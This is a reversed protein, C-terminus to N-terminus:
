STRLLRIALVTPEISLRRRILIVMALQWSALSVSAAVAAGYIGFPPILAFNLAANVVVAAALLGASHAQHGTMSALFGVPWTLMVVTPGILLIQLPKYAVVFQPGFTGLLLDGFVLAVLIAPVSLALVAASGLAVTRQLDHHRGAAHFEAFMPTTVTNVATIGLVSFNAIRIAVSYIGADTTGALAGIMIVDLRQMLLYFGAILFMPLAVRIWESLRYNPIAKRTEPPLARRLMEWATGLSLVAAALNLWIADIARLPADRAALWAVVALTTVLPRLIGQPFQSDLVRMLGRLEAGIIQLLTNVPLVFCGVLLVTAFENDIREGLAWVTAALLGSICTSSLAPYAKGAILYGRLSGWDGNARYSPVFRLAATDWGMTGALLLIELWALAYVYLGYEQAGLVRALLIQLVLVLGISALQLGLSGAAGRSVTAALSTGALRGTWEKLRSM